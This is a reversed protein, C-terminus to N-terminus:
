EEMNPTTLANLVSNRQKAADLVSNVRQQENVGKVQKHESHTRAGTSQGMDIQITANDFKIDEFILGSKGFRSKLIAM